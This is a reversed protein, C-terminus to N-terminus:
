TPLIMLPKRVPCTKEASGYASAGGAAPASCVVMARVSGVYNDLKLTHKATQGKGLKFPGLHLVAPKFRNIQAGNKAKQNIADGGVSLIRELQAGYAGLVYDYMDWTKVGLAERAFFADWPNPTQFRTLDLLGDDVVALTYTCAQGSNERISVTFPEGPRLVEPMSLKPELHSGPNEVNVPMVGYMRIPLDNKTQAHPQFLSVHAYVTPVMNEGARFKLFNDGAKADFWVHEVVRSGTELTLLIRGNESAPVKLAVENGVQYKEKEVSFPLMAAANRSHMDNLDDPYGSWFFDGGAHGGEPDTVRVLYRGWDGPTVNWSALGRSDTTLVIKDVANLHDSSNFQGVNSARDEDWWWRWDCRYLGAELRQGALPRGNKDVCALQITGGKQDLEKAGWRNAPIFVGVFREFPYYDLAFNDTSFDGGAEFVRMKFDAVLKGPANQQDGLRLPITAQGNGDLAADFVVEPESQFTRAPDDFVFDKFNKFATQAARLQMEVRAKLGRAPAGHLWNVQLRGSGSADSAALTTKGFNLDFKLRNPKVTEIKLLKTFAAGGVQVKATWNGTPADSRTACPFAFVGGVHQTSVTRYQLAGRPDTLEFSVPHGAPLKGSKDELVFNLYLSDGPRWVGREGYLFGKLGEQPEVGAVDFRSLSLTNGDALRLYGRRSGRTAVLVFPVERLPDLLAVGSGDTRCKAISQLQYNFLELDVGSEPETSHLNNVCIFLSRDAGLKATIGLDSVFVNRKTFHEYNYYENRCPNDRNAWDYDDNEDWWGDNDDYYIGRYGGWISVLNGYNDAKGLHALNDDAAQEAGPCNQITYGRRFALRVQYIAGPDQHIIAKLDLAYRQWVQSNADPNLESLTIKKQLVIRGVRELEQDGELENVQLYQLINSNFIKFVEVDVARLGVAEFPFVINGDSQQPIVAGRGVLRVGPQLAEFNLPWDSRDKMAAGATNRIGAEVRLSRQGSIREGPYVRVFNGDIAFRLAGEFAEIRILGDLTQAADVPDSFNLLVFQDEEQQVRANLVIFEDLAPVIQEAKGSKDLGLPKGSWQLEVKSRLQAREIGGVVFEHTLGDGSHTWQVALTNNGQ